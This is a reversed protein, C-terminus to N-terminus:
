LHQSITPWDLGALLLDACAGLNPVGAPWRHQRGCVPQATCTRPQQWCLGTHTSTTKPRLVRGTGRPFASPSSSVGAAGQLHCALCVQAGVVLGVKHACVQAVQQMCPVGSDPSSSLMAGGHGRYLSGAATTCEAQLTASRSATEAAIGGFIGDQLRM